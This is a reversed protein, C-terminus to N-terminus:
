IGNLTCTSSKDDFESCLVVPTQKPKKHLLMLFIYLSAQMSKRATPLSSLRDVLLLLDAHLYVPSTFMDICPLVPSFTPVTHYDGERWFRADAVNLAALFPM